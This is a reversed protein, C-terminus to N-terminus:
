WDTNIQKVERLVDSHMAVVFDINVLMQYHEFSLNICCNISKKRYMKRPEAFDVTAPLRQIPNEASRQSDHTFQINFDAKIREPVKWSAQM